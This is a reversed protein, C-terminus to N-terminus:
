NLKCADILTWNGKVFSIFRENSPTITENKMIAIFVGNDDKQFKLYAKTVNISDPDAFLGQRKPKWGEINEGLWKDYYDYINQVSQDSIFTYKELYYGFLEYGEGM